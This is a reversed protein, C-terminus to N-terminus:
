RVLNRLQAAFNPREADAAPKMFPNGRYHLRESGSRTPRTTDGGRELLGPAVAKGRTSVPGVVVSRTERDFAFFILRLEGSHSSPPRGPPSSKKRRRISSRARTRVFAGMKSLSRRTGADVADTVPKADFFGSYVVQFDFAM